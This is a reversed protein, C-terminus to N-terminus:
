AHWVKVELEAYSLRGNEYLTVPVSLVSVPRGEPPSPGYSPSSEEIGHYYYFKMQFRFNDGGVERTFNERVFDPSFIKVPDVVYERTRSGEEHALSNLVLDNTISSASDVLGATSLISQYQSYASVLLAIFVIAL